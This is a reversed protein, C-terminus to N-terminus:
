CRRTEFEVSGCLAATAYHASTQLLSQALSRALQIWTRQAPTQRTTQKYGQRDQFEYLDVQKQRGAEWISLNFTHVM